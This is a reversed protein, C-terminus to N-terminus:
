MQLESEDIIASLTMSIEMPNQDSAMVVYAAIISTFVIKYSMTGQYM